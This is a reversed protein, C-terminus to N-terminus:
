VKSNGGRIFAQAQEPTFEFYHLGTDDTGLSTMRCTNAYFDDAQPLSHLGVRGKYENQLSYAVAARVLISGVGSYATYASNQSHKRNWPASELYQIYVLHQNFQIDIRARKITSTIMLGQTLGNCVVSFCPNGLSNEIAKTKDRWNWHLNQPWLERGIGDRNLQQVLRFLEPVWETRWDVLNKEVIADWLAAEVINGAHDTLFVPSVQHTM